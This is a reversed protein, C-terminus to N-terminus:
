RGNAEGEIERNLRLAHRAADLRDKVGQDALNTRRLWELHPVAEDYREERELWRAYRDRVEPRDPALQLARVWADNAEDFRGLEDLAVASAMLRDPSPRDSSRTLELVRDLFPRREAARDNRDPLLWDAAALVTVPDDPLLLTRVEDVTLVRRAAALVTPLTQPAIELSRKWDAWAAATDGRRLADRGSAYWVEPDSPLLTKARAFHVAAPEASAFYDAYLGFRTHPKPALPNSRRADRLLRLALVLHREVALPTLRDPPVLFGAAGGGVGAGPAWTVAVAQDLHAQAAAFLADPDSPRAAARADFSRVRDETRGEAAAVDAALHLRYSESRSRADGAAAMALAAVLVGVLLAPVGRFTTGRSRTAAPAPPGEPSKAAVPAV